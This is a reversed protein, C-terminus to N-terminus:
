LSCVVFLLVSSQSIDSRGGLELANQVVKGNFSGSSIVVFVKRKM